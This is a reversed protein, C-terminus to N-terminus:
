ERLLYGISEGNQNILNGESSVAVNPSSELVILFPFDPDDTKRFTGLPYVKGNKVVVFTNSKTIYYQSHPNHTLTVRWQAYSPIRTVPRVEPIDAGSSATAPKEQVSPVEPQTSAILDEARFWGDEIAALRKNRPPHTASGQPSALLRMAVQAEDLTAGMKRLVFGSFEDAELETKPRSGGRKLTHGNLHHGIEHALISIASWDTRTSNIVKKIFTPNYLIYRQSNNIWAAANPVTGAEVIFNPVLGIVQVIDNMVARAEAESEFQQITKINVLNGGGFSCYHEEGPYDQSYTQVPMSGAILLFVGAFFVFPKM